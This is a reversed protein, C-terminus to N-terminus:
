NDDEISFDYIMSQDVSMNESVVLEDHPSWNQADGRETAPEHLHFEENIDTNDTEFSLQKPALPNQQVQVTNTFFQVPPTIGVPVSQRKSNQLGSNVTVINTSGPLFPGGVVSGLLHMNSNYHATLLM